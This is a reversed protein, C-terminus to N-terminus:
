SPRLFCRVKNCPHMTKKELKRGSPHTPARRHERTGEKQATVDQLLGVARRARRGRGEVVDGLVDGVPHAGTLVATSSISINHMISRNM